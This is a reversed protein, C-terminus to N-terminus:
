MYIRFESRSLINYLWQTVQGDELKNLTSDDPNDLLAQAQITINSKDPLILWVIDLDDSFSASYVGNRGAFHYPSSFSQTKRVENVYDEFRYISSAKM